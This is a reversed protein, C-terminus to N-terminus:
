YLIPNKLSKLIINTQVTSDAPLITKPAFNKAEGTVWFWIRDLPILYRELGPKRVFSIRFNEPGVRVLIELHGAYTAQLRM